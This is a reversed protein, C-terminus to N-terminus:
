NYPLTLDCPQSPGGSPRQGLGTGREHAPERRAGRNKEQGSMHYNAKDPIFLNAGAFDLGNALVKLQRTPWPESQRGDGAM